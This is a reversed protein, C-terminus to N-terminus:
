SAVGPAAAAGETTSAAAAPSSVDLSAIDLRGYVIKQAFFASPTEGREYLVGLHAGDPLLRMSSYASPGAHVVMSHPWTEGGDDSRRLTLAGRATPSSPAAFFLPPGGTPTAAGRVMSGHCGRPPSEPLDPARRPASWTAGGDSSTQLVRRRALSLDRSNLLLRGDPLQAIACENTHGDRSSGGIHWTNGDDHSLLVHSHDGGGGVAAVGEAHTAPVIITGNGLVIAGGPGTAYWSWGPLKVESTIERPATWNGGTDSSRTLWVRRGAGGKGDRIADETVDAANSCYILLLEGARRLYIPVPNGITEGSRGGSAVVVVAGWSRGGDTSRRLVLDIRGHDDVTPRAEAFALLTRAARVLAPIRFVRYGELGQTYVPVVPLGGTRRQRPAAAAGGGGGLAAAAQQQRQQRRTAVRPEAGLLAEPEIIEDCRLTRWREQEAVDTLTGWSAGPVVHHLRAMAVCATLAAERLSLQPPSPSTAMPPSSGSTVSAGISEGHTHQTTGFFFYRMSLCLAAALISLRLAQTKPTFQRFSKNDEEGGMFKTIKLAIDTYLQSGRPVNSWKYRLLPVCTHSPGHFKATLM